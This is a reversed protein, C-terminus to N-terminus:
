EAWWSGRHVRKSYRQYPQNQQRQKDKDSRLDILSFISRWDVAGMKENPNPQDYGDGIEADTDEDGTVGHQSLKPHVENDEAHRGTDAPEHGASKARLRLGYYGHWRTPLFL